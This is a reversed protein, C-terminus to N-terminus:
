CWYCCCLRFLCRFSETVEWCWLCSETDDELVDADANPVGYSVRQGVSVVASKVSAMTASEMKEKLKAFIEDVLKSLPLSIEEM